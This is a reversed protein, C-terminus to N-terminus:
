KAKRISSGLQSRLRSLEEEYARCQSLMQEHEVQLDRSKKKWLNVKDIALNIGDLESWQTDQFKAASSYNELVSQAAEFETQAARYQESNRQIDLVLQQRKDSLESYPRSKEISSKLKRYTASLQKSGESLTLHFQRRCELYLIISLNFCAKVEETYDGLM